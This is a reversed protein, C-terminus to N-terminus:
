YIAVKGAENSVAQLREWLYCIAAIVVGLQMLCELIEKFHPQAPAVDLEKGKLNKQKSGRIWYSITMDGTRDSSASAIVSFGPGGHTQLAKLAAKQVYSSAVFWLRRSWAERAIDCFRRNFDQGATSCMSWVM